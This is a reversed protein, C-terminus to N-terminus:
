NSIIDKIAEMKAFLLSKALEKTVKKPEFHDSVVKLIHFKKIAPNHVVADYFGFSEMDTLKYLAESQAEDVCVILPLDDQFRYVIEQYAVGGCEVLEGLEYDRSGACIGANIYTDDDTIDFHNILTQTALRANEVGMGSIILKINQNEFLTYNNLKSKKLKYYDVFAQAEPKLATVIYTM